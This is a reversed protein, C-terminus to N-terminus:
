ADTTTTNASQDPTAGADTTTQTDAGTEDSPAAPQAGCAATSLVLAGALLASLVKNRNKM